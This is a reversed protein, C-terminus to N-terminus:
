NEAGAKRLIVFRKGADDKLHVVVGDTLSHKALEEQFQAVSGVPQGGVREIVQGAEIGAAAALSDPKVNTVVVGSGEALGLQKATSANLDSLELGLDDIEKGSPAETKALVTTTEPMEAITVQLTQQKGGRIVQVPYAKGIDCKEVVDQLRAPGDIAVGNLSLIVDGPELGAKAAPSNPMVRQVIAGQRTKVGFQGALEANVASIATGIYGRRVSGHEALQQSVWSAIHVPIAFGIGDYGGSRSAIATNIGIVEGDLNLLPGGSNGPNIAADTQLFDARDVIGQQRGKASIIGATVTTELGFPSGVALVWDGVQVAHSDGMRLPKLDSAGEIRLVAVDTRPDVHIDKAIFERGDNLRIKVEDAGDVVHGNTVILGSDDIVFGSGLGRQQPQVQRRQRFMERMQPDNKFFDRFPLSEDDFPLANTAAKSRTLTEIAVISPSAEAAVRRFATSLDHAKAVGDVAVATQRDAWSIAALVMAVSAFGPALWSFWRSRNM